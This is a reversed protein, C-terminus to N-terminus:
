NSLVTIGNEHAKGNVHLTKDASVGIWKKSMLDKVFETSVYAARALESPASYARDSNLLAFVRAIRKQQDDVQWGMGQGVGDSKINVVEGEGELAELVDIVTQKRKNISKAFGALNGIPGSSLALLIARRIDPEGVANRGAEQAEDKFTGLGEDSLEINVPAPKKQPGPKDCVMRMRKVDDTESVPEFRFVVDSQDRIASTGRIGGSKNAHHVFNVTCGTETFRGAYKVGEAFGTTNEDANGPMSAGLSDAVVLTIGKREVNRALKLWFEPKDIQPGSYLYGLDPADEGGNLMRVRRRFEYPGDEYDLYLAKGKKVPYQGLWPKGTAVAIALALATWTKVSGGEAYFTVVKAEPILGELLYVPPELQKDWGGWCEGLDDPDKPAEANPDPEPKPPPEFLDLLDAPMPEARPRTSKTKADHAKHAIARALAGAELPPASRPNFHEAIIEHIDANPLCLDHAGHQVISFLRTDREGEVSPRAQQCYSTFLARMRVLEDGTVDGPYSQTELHGRADDQKRLWDLLWAPADAVPLDEEVVYVGGSKHPSGPAVAYQGDGKIDVNKCIVSNSGWVKFEPRNFYRHVGRGSGSRVALTPPVGQAQIWAEAEASDTEIVFVGSRMGTAIGYATHDPSSAEWQQGAELNSWLADPHKGPKDCEPDNCSCSGDPNIPRLPFIALQPFLDAYSM